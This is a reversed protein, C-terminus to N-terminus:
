NIFVPTSFFRGGGLYLRLYYMGPELPGANIPYVANEGTSKFSGLWIKRGMVDCLLARVTGEAIVGEVRFVGKGPNPYVVIEGEMGPGGNNPLTTCLKFLFSNARGLTDFSLDTDRVTFVESLSNGCFLLNGEPDIAGGYSFDLEPGGFVRAQLFAGRLDFELAVLDTQGFWPLSFGDLETGPYVNAGVILTEYPSILASATWELDEPDSSGFTKVWRMNGDDDFSLVLNEYNGAPIIPVGEWSFESQIYGVGYINRNRDCTLGYLVGNPFGSPDPLAGQLWLLKGSKGELKAIFPTRGGNKGSSLVQENWRLSDSFYGGLVVDGFYDIAIPQGRSDSGAQSQVAWLIEGEADLRLAYAQYNEGAPGGSSLAWGGPLSLDGTFRGTMVLSGDGSFALGYCWIDGAGSFLRVWTIAGASDLLHVFAGFRDEYYTGAIAIRDKWTDVDPSFSSFPGAAFGRAWRLRGNPDYKSLVLQYNSDVGGEQLFVDGESSQMFLSDAAYGAMYSNGWDDAAVRFPANSSYPDAQGKRSWQSLAWDDECQGRLGSIPCFCSLFGSLLFCIKCFDRM